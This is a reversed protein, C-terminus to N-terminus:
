QDLFRREQSRRDGGAGHRCSPEYRRKGGRREPAPLLGVREYYRIASAEVGSRRSVEGISLLEESSESNTTM